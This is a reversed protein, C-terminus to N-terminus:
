EDMNLRESIHWSRSWPSNFTLAPIQGPTSANRRITEHPLKEGDSQSRFIFGLKDELANLDSTEDSVRCNATRLMVLVKTSIVRGKREPSHILSSLCRMALQFMTPGGYEKYRKSLAREFAVLLRVM